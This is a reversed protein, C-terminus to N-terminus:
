IDEPIGKGVGEHYRRHSYYGMLAALAKELVSQTEPLRLWGEARPIPVGM